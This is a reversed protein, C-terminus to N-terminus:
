GLAMETSEAVEALLEEVQDALEAATALDEDDAAVRLDAMLSSIQGSADEELSTDVRDWIAELTAVDGSVGGSDDAAADNTLQITWLRLADLDAQAPSDYPLQLDLTAGAVDLAAQQVELADEDEIASLLEAVASDMQIVLVPPVGAARYVAWITELLVANADIEDWDEGPAEAMITTAVDTLMTLEAPPEAAIADIPLGLAVTVFETGGLASFEGYGPAFYKTERVGDAQLESTEIAGPVPGRPGLVTVRTATVTM